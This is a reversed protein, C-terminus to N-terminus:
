VELITGPEPISLQISSERLITGRIRDPDLRLSRQMHTFALHRVHKRTAMEILRDIDAHVPTREFSYAEHILLDAAAFLDASEDTFMGDGSYCFARGASEVRIALNSASHVTPAFRLQAGRWQLSEAPSVPLYEISYEFRKALGSYGLELVQRIQELVPGQSLITLPRTRKEEWMRGLVPPLGFYHDAHAHSIYIGDVASHDPFARWLPAPASYGCDLLLTFPGTLLVSTNTYNEDFAEGCGLIQVQMFRNHGNCFVESVPPM